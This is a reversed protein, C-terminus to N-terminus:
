RHEVPSATVHSSDSGPGEPASLPPDQSNSQVPHGTRKPLIDGPAGLRLVYLPDVAFEAAGKVKSNGKSEFGSWVRGGYADRIILM